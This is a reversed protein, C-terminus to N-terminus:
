CWGDGAEAGDGDGDGDGDGAAKATGFGGPLNFSVHLMHKKGMGRGKSRDVWREETRGAIERDPRSNNRHRLSGRSSVRRGASVWRVRWQGM